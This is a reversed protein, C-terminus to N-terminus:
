LIDHLHIIGLPKMNKTIFYNTISQDNMLKLADTLSTETSLTKPNHTMIESVKKLLNTSMHRRLDGDTVIGKLIGKSSIVGVCGEGKSSMELIAESVKQNLKVM